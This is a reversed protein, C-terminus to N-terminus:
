KLPRDGAAPGLAQGRETPIMGRVAAVFREASGDEDEIGRLTVSRRALTFAVEPVLVLQRAVLRYRVDKVEAWPVLRRRLTGHLLLGEPRVEAAIGDAWRLGMRAFEWVMWLALALMPLNVGAVAIPAIARFLGAFRRPEDMAEINLSGWAFLGACLVALPLMCGIKGNAFRLM